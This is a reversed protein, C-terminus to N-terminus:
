YAVVIIWQHLVAVLSKATVINSKIKIYYHDWKVSLVNM